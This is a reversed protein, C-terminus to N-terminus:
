PSRRRRRCPRSARAPTTYLESAENSLPSYNPPIAACLDFAKVRYSYVAAGADTMSTDTFTTATGWLPSGSIAAWAGADKKREIVYGAFDDPITAPATWSLGVATNSSASATLVTPGDPLLSTCYDYTEQAEIYTSGPGTGCTDITQVRYFYPYKGADFVLDKISTAGGYLPSGGAPVTNVIPTWAGAAGNKREIVYGAFDSPLPNPPSWSLNM